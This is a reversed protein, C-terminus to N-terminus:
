DGQALAAARATAAAHRARRTKRWETLRDLYTYIVPVVVLTLLTSTVVGGIIARGM